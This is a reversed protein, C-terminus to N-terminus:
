PSRRCPRSVPRGAALPRLEIDPGGVAMFLDRKSQFVHFRAGCGGPLPRPGLWVLAEPASEEELVFAFVDFLKSKGV